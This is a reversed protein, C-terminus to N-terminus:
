RTPQRTFVLKKQLGPSVHVAGDKDVLVAESGPYRDLLAQMREPGAIFIAKTLGEATIADKTLLTASRSRTAALGTRPDVIHHARVGDQVRFREYDGSTSFAADELELEAFTQELARPDRIAVKWPRAGRRGAAYLDGGLRLLFARIGANKLATAALDVAYGKAIGNLSLRMQPDQLRVTGTARDIAVKKYDILTRKKPDPPAESPDGVVAFTPDFLGGTKDGHALAAELVFLTRPSVTIATGNATNLRSVDSTPVWPSMDAIVADYAATALRVAEDCRADDPLILSAETGMSTFTRECTALLLLSLLV